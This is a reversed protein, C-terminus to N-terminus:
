KSQNLNTYCLLKTFCTEYEDATWTCLWWCLGTTCHKLTWYSLWDLGWCSRRPRHRHTFVRRWSFVVSSHSSRVDLSICTTKERRLALKTPHTQPITCLSVSTMPASGLKPFFVVTVVFPILLWYSLIFITFCPCNTSGRRPPAPATPPALTPVSPKCGPQLPMPTGNHCKTGKDFNCLPCAQLLGGTANSDRLTM